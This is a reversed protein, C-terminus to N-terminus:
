FLGGAKSAQSNVLDRRDYLLIDYLGKRPSSLLVTVTVSYDPDVSTGCHPQHTRDSNGLSKSPEGYFARIWSSWRAISV